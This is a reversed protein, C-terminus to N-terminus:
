LRDVELEILQDQGHVPRPVLEDVDLVEGLLLELPERLPIVPDRLPVMLLKLVSGPFNKGQDPPDPIRCGSDTMTSLPCSRGPIRILGGLGECPTELWRPFHEPRMGEALADRLRQMEEIRRLAAESM